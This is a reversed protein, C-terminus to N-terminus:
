AARANIEAHVLALVDDVARRMLPAKPLGNIEWRHITVQSVGFRKGFAEQSEGLAERLMKLSSEVRM